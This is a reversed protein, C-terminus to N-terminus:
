RLTRPASLVLKDTANYVLVYVIGSTLAGREVQFAIAGDSWNVPVQPVVISNAGITATSSLVVRQLGIQAYLEDTLFDAYSSANTHGDGEHFEGWTRTSGADRTRTNLVSYVTREGVNVTVSGDSAGAKSDQTARIEWRQWAGRKDPTGDHWSEQYTANGDTLIMGVGASILFGPGYTSTSYPNGWLQFQKLQGGSGGNIKFYWSAYLQGGSGVNAMFHLARFEQYGYQDQGPGFHHLAARAGSHKDASTYKVGGLTSYKGVKAGSLPVLAGDAGSEFDDWLLVKPGATGFGSGTITAVGGQALSDSPPPPPPPPPPTLIPACADPPASAPLWDGPMWCQPYAAASYTRTQTWVGTAGTPCAGARVDAAPQPSTCSPPPPPPPPDATVTIAVGTKTRCTYLGPGTVKAQDVCATETALGRSIIRSGRYLDWDDSTVVANTGAFAPPLMATLWFTLLARVVSIRPSSWNLPNM